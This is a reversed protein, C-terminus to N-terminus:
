ENEILKKKLNYVLKKRGRVYQSRVTSENIQLMEAIKKFECEDFLRMSLIIRYGDPLNNLEQQITEVSLQLEYDTEEEDAISLNDDIQEFIPKSKRMRDISMRMAITRSWSYFAKENKLKELNDFLKLFVDQMTEEADLPNGVIRLCTNYIRKYHLQYLERRLTESKKDNHFLFM